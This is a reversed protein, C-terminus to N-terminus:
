HTFFIRDIMASKNVKLSTQNTCTLYCRGEMMLDEREEQTLNTRGRNLNSSAPIHCAFPLTPLEGSGTTGSGSVQEEGEDSTDHNGSQAITSSICVAAAATVLSLLLSHKFEM